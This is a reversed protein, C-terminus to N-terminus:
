PLLTLLTLTADVSVLSTCSVCLYLDPESSRPMHLIDEPAKRTVSGKLASQSRRKEPVSVEAEFPQLSPQVSVQPLSQRAKERVSVFM